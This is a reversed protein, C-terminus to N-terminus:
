QLRDTPTPVNQVTQLLHERSQLLSRRLLLRRGRSLRRFESQGALSHLQDMEAKIRKLKAQFEDEVPGFLGAMAVLENIEHAMEKFAQPNIERSRSKREMCARWASKLWGLM